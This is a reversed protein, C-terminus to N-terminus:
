EDMSGEINWFHRWGGKRLRGCSPCYFRKRDNRRFSSSTRDQSNRVDQPYRAGHSIADLNGWVAVVTEVFQHSLGLVEKLIGHSGLFTLDFLRKIEQLFLVSRSNFGNNPCLGYRWRDLPHALSYEGGQSRHLGGQVAEQIDDSILHTSGRGLPACALLRLIVKWRKVM